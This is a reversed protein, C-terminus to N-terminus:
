QLTISDHGGSSPKEPQKSGGYRKAALKTNTKHPATSATRM